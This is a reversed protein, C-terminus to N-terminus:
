DLGFVPEYVFDLGAIVEPLVVAFHGFNGAPFNAADFDYRITEPAIDLSRGGQCKGISTELSFFAHTSKLYSRRHQARHRQEGQACDAERCPGVIRELELGDVNLGRALLHLEFQM